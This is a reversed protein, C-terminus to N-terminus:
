ERGLYKMVAKVEAASKERSVLESPMVPNDTAVLPRDQPLDLRYLTAGHFGSPTIRPLCGIPTLAWGWNSVKEVVQQRNEDLVQVRLEESEKLPLANCVWAYGLSNIEKTLAQALMQRDTLVM